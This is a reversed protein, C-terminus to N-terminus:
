YRGWMHFVERDGDGDSDCGIPMQHSQCFSGVVAELDRSNKWLHLVLM